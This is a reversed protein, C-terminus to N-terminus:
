LQSVHCYFFSQDGKFPYITQKIMMWTKRELSATQDRGLHVLILLIFKPYSKDPM